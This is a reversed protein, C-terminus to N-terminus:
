HMPPAMSDHFLYAYREVEETWNVASLSFVEYVGEEGQRIAINQNGANNVGIAGPRLIEGLFQVVSMNTNNKNVLNDILERRIPIDKINNIEFNDINGFTAPGLASEAAEEDDSDRLPGFLDLYTVDDLRDNEHYNKVDGGHRSGKIKIPKHNQRAGCRRNKPLPAYVNEIIFKVFGENIELGDTISGNPQVMCSTYNSNDIQTFFGYGNAPGLADFLEEWDRWNKNHEPWVWPGHQKAQGRYWGTGYPYDPNGYPPWIKTKKPGIM